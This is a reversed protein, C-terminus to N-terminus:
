GHIGLAVCDGYFTEQERIMVTIKNKELELATM